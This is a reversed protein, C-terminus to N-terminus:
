THASLLKPSSFPDLTKRIDFGAKKLAGTYENLLFAHEGGYLKHLPHIDLFADLDDHQSIVHERVAVFLGGPKL